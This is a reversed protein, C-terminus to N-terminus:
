KGHTVTKNQLDDAKTVPSIDSLSAVNPNTTLPYTGSPALVITTTKMATNLASVKQELANLKKVLDDVKVLGKYSGDNLVIQEGGNQAKDYVAFSSDGVQLYYKDIDSYQVILADNYTSTLVYVDSNVKPLIFLGDCIAAQLKVNPLEVDNEIVVVCTAKDEDVSKVSGIILQVRDNKFTGALKQIATKIARDSHPKRTAM